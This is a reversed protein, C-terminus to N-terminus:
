QVLFHKFMGRLCFYYLLPFFIRVSLHLFYDSFTFNGILKIKPTKFKLYKLIELSPLLKFSPTEWMNCIKLFSYSQPSMTVQCQNLMGVLNFFTSPSIMIVIIRDESNRSLDIKLHQLKCTKLTLFMMQNLYLCNQGFQITQM